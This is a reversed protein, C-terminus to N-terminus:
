NNSLVAYVSRAKNFYEDHKKDIVSRFCLKFLHWSMFNLREEKGFREKVVLATEDISIAAQLYYNVWITSIDEQVTKFANQLVQDEECEPRKFNGAKNYQRILQPDDLLEIKKYNLGELAQDRTLTLEKHSLFFRESISKKDENKTM